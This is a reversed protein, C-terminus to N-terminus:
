RPGVSTCHRTTDKHSGSLKERAEALVSDLEARIQRAVEELEAVTKCESGLMVGGGAHQVASAMPDAAIWYINNAALGPWKQGLFLTRRGAM